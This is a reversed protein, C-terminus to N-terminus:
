VFVICLHIFEELYPKLVFVSNEAASFYKSSLLFVIIKKTEIGTGKFLCSM